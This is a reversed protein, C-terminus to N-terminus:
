RSNDHLPIQKPPTAVVFLRLSRVSNLRELEGIAWWGSKVRANAIGDVPFVLSAFSLSFSLSLLLLFFQFGRARTTRKVLSLWIPPFCARRPRRSQWTIVISAPEWDITVEFAFPSLRLNMRLKRGRYLVYKSHM